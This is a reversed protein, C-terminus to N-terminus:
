ILAPPIRHPVSDDLNPGSAHCPVLSRRAGPMFVGHDGASTVVDIDEQRAQSTMEESNATVERFHSLSRRATQYETKKTHTVIAYLRNVLVASPCDAGIPLTRSVALSELADCIMTIALYTVFLLDEQEKRESYKVMAVLTDRHKAVFTSFDSLLEKLKRRDASLVQPHINLATLASAVSALVWEASRTAGRALILNPSPFWQGTYLDREAFKLLQATDLRLHLIYM